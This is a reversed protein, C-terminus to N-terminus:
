SQLSLRAAPIERAVEGALMGAEGLQTRLRDAALGHLFVGLVAAEEAPMGQALLAGLLGTLVDGMGGAAMGPNGSGNIRVRGDAFAIVTRAGKLVLTVGFREAFRRATAIRDAEVDAVTVGCLRAMEGPHPTLLTAAHRELLVEPCAAVANLGDADIVLPHPCERVLREVLEGTEAALGLGPGLAVAKKDAWLSRIAELAQRGLAGATEPLAETMAETLKVALTAQVSAPCGVTVLGAGSRLGATASLAAAGAKGVSGALILLHGFTGKHGTAPRPPLLSAALPEDVLLHADGSAAILWPPIGIDVPMLEGVAAAGPYVVQGLKAAAFTVTIDARVGHGLVAGSTADIGSPIDVALVPRGSANIWDIARAYHGRVSSSLGTGFLADVILVADGEAALCPELTEDDPAFAVEGRCGRLAALNVATDGSLAEPACLVVTRVQWGANILHRAIVYGDGGNNGKGALVLIPGPKLAAFREALIRAAGAGAHEMLVVGPIGVEEITRRDLERMEDATLLKV